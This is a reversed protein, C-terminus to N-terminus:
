WNTEWTINGKKPNETLTEVTENLMEALKSILLNELDAEDDGTKEGARKDILEFIKNITSKPTARHNLWFSAEFLSPVYKLPNTRLGEMTFGKEFLEKATERTFGLTYETDDYTFKITKM